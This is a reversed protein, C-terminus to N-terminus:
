CKTKDEEKNIGAAVMKELDVEEVINLLMEIDNSVRDYEEGGKQFVFHPVSTKGAGLRYISEMAYNETLVVAVTNINKNLCLTVKHNHMKAEQYLRKVDYNVVDEIKKKYYGKDHGNKRELSEIIDNQKYDQIVIVTERNKRQLRESFLPHNNSIFAKGDNMVIVVRQSNVFDSRIENELPFADSIQVLKHKQYTRLVDFREIIEEDIDRGDFINTIYSVILSAMLSAALSLIITYWGDSIGQLYFQAFGFLALVIIVIITRILRTKNKRYKQLLKDKKM